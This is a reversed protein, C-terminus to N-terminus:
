AEAVLSQRSALRWVPLLDERLVDLWSPWDHEIHRRAAAAMQCRREPASFLSGIASAWADPDVHDVLVGDHGALKVMQASGGSASLIPPLGSAKAEVVVNPMLETTSPFAFVDASAYLTRLDSQQLPGPVTAHAGLISQVTDREAGRGVFMFHIPAGEDLLKRGAHALAMPSKSADLRGVFLVLFMDRAIGFRSEVAARDRWVPNFFNKDIGRRLRSVRPRPLLELARDYDEDSSALVFASEKLYRNLRENMFAAAREHVGMEQLLYRGIQGSGAMSEIVKRAFIRTYKPTDTHTSSVLPIGRSRAFARATKAFAFFADTAHIVSYQSLERRLGRHRPALDTHDPAGRLFPICATSLVPRHIVFRVNPSISRHEHRRGAFHVTLDLGDDLGTAAAALREWCKVHGGAHENLELDVLAGVRLKRSLGRRDSV